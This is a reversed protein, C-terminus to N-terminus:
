CRRHPHGDPSEHVQVVMNGSGCPDSEHKSSYKVALLQWIEPGSPSLTLMPEKHRLPRQAKVRLVEKKVCRLLAFNSSASRLKETVAPWVSQCEAM